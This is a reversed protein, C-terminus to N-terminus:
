WDVGLDKAVKVASDFGDEHFGNRWYAGCFSSRNQGNIESWRAQANIGEVTFVPHAYRYRGLIKDSDIEDTHNLTVCFTHDSEIRQLINMDYTLAPLSQEYDTLLYNWSSWCLRKKPLMNTDTHLVVDNMQYPIASLIEREEATAGQGLISLTQDSHCAFVIHDFREEGHKTLVTVGDEDRKVSLVPSSLRIKDAYSQTLPEIYERSGGILTYWQPREKTELLGHNKFFRVFFLLPFAMMTKTSASWIAAGMPVLYHNIFGDSYNNAELYDGLTANAPLTGSALDEKAEKNFRLIDKVLRIFYPSLLNKRQAFLTNLNNGAYELGTKYCRVSFGMSTPQTQVGLEELLRIFLPYTAENYVIFGTDIAYEKGDVSVDVTATHGGLKDNSEFLTIDHQKNLLYAAGMGSIGSGIIAIRM